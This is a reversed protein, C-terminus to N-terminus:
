QDNTYKSQFIYKWIKQGNLFIPNNTKKSNVQLLQINQSKNTNQGM